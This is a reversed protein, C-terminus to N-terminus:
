APLRELIDLVGRVESEPSVYDAQAQLREDANAPCAFWAVSSRIAEDGMTDGIGALRSPDLGTAEILRALGTAKSVHELDCNIYNWTASIRLPWGCVRFAKELMPRLEDLVGPDPHYLSISAAKGPQITVGRPGLQKEVWESADRVARLHDPTISPDRDYRNEAPHYLWVGNEAVCPLRDNGILRCVAEAFPQPRGSCVTVLPRDGASRARENYGAIEALARADMPDSTEPCLCGDIDCIIADFRGAATHMPRCDIGAM